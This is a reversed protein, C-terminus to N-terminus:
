DQSDLVQRVNDMAADIRRAVDRNTTELRRVKALQGDLDAALRARDNDLAHIQDSLAVRERDMELRREVASDLTNLAQSLRKTAHEIAAQDTM